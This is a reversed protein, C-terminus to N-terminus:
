AVARNANGAITNYHSAVKTHWSQDTAWGAKNVASLQNGLSDQATSGGKSRLNAFTKAGSYIQNVAGDFPTKGNPNSDYAGVGLMKTLGVGLKGYGTEHKAIALLALPDVENQRGAAVFHSGLGQGAAPSGELQTEIFQALKQDDESLEPPVVQTESAPAAEGAAAAPADGGVPAAGGMPAGGGAPAGGGMPAGGGAPAAMAGGADVPAAAGGADAPQVGVDPASTSKDGMLRQLDSVLTSLRGAAANAAAEDGKDLAAQLETETQRIEEQLKKIKEQKKEADTKAPDEAKDKEGAEDPKPTTGDEAKESDETGEPDKLAALLPSDEGEEAAGATAEDSLVAGDAPGRAPKETSQGATMASATPTAQAAHVTRNTQQNSIARIPESM